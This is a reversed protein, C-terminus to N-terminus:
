SDETGGRAAGVPGFQRGGAPRRSSKPKGAPAAPRMPVNSSTVSGASRGSSDTQLENGEAFDDDLTRSGSSPTTMGRKLIENERMVRELDKKMQNKQAETVTMTRIADANQEQLHQIKKELSILREQKFQDELRSMEAKNVQSKLGSKQSLVATLKEELVALLCSRQEASLFALPEYEDKASIVNAVAEEILETTGDPSVRFKGRLLTLEKTYQKNMKSLKETMQKNETKLIRLEALDSGILGHAHRALLGKSEDLVSNMKDVLQKKQEPSMKSAGPVMDEVFAFIARACEKHAASVEELAQLRSVWEGATSAMLPIESGGARSAWANGPTIGARSPTEVFSSGWAGGAKSASLAPLDAVNPQTKVPKPRQGSAEFPSGTHSSGHQPADPTKRKDIKRDDPNSSGSLSMDIPSSSGKPHPSEDQYESVVSDADSDEDARAMQVALNPPIARETFRDLNMASGSSKGPGTPGKAPSSTM